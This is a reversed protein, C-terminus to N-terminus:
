CSHGGYILYMSMTVIYAQTDDMRKYYKRAWLLGIETWYALHPHVKGLNEWVTMLLEFSAIAGCLVPTKESSMTTLVGHPAEHIAPNVMLTVHFLTSLFM